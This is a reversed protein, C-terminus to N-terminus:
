RKEERPEQPNKERAALLADAYTYAIESIDRPRNVIIDCMGEGFQPNGDRFKTLASIMGEMAKAAFYDRLTMGSNVIGLRDADLPFAPGGNKPETM